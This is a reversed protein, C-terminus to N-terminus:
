RWDLLRLYKDVFVENLILMISDGSEASRQSDARQYRESIDAATTIGLPAPRSKERSAGSPFLKRNCNTRSCRMIISTKAFYGPDGKLKNRILDEIVTGESTDALRMM